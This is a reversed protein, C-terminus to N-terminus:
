QLEINKKKPAKKILKVIVMGSQYRAECTSEFDVFEDLCVKIEAKKRNDSLGVFPSDYLVVNQPLTIDREYEITLYAVGYREELSAVLTEKKCNICPIYILVNGDETESMAEHPAINEEPLMLNALRFLFEPAEGREMDEEGKYGYQQKRYYFIYTM